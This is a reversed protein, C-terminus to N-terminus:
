ERCDTRGDGKRVAGKMMVAIAEGEGIISRVAEISSGAARAVEERTIDATLGPSGMIGGDMLLFKIGQGELCKVLFGIEEAKTDLTGVVL